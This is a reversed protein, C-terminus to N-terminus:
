IKKKNEPKAEHYIALAAAPLGFLMFPFLGAMFTGAEPDGAFYRTMVGRVVNGADNVFTGFEYWFPQYFIHHLGFPILIRQGFGFIFAAITSGTETALVAFWDIVNQSP